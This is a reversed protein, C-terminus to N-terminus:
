STPGSKNGFWKNMLRTPLEVLVKSIAEEFKLRLFAIVFGLGGLILAEEWSLPEDTEFYWGYFAFIMMASGLITTIVGKWINELKIWDLKFM